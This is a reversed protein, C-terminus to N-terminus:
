EERKEVFQGFVIGLVRRATRRRRDASACRPCLAGADATTRTCEACIPKRCATCAFLCARCVEARCDFCRGGFPADVPHLCGLVQTTRYHVTDPSGEPSLTHVEAEVPVTESSGTRADRRVLVRLVRRLPHGDQPKLDYTM